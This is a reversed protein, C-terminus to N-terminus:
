KGAFWEKEAEVAARQAATSAVPPCILGEQVCRAETACAHELLVPCDLYNAAHILAECGGGGTSAVYSAFFVLDWESTEGAALAKTLEAPDDHEHHMWWEVVTRLTRADIAPLPIAATDPVRHLLNAITASFKVCPDRLCLLSTDERPVLTIMDNMPQRAGRRICQGIHASVRQDVTIRRAVAFVCRSFHVLRIAGCAPACIVLL